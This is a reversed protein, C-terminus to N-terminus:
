VVCHFRHGIPRHHPGGEHVHKRVFQGPLNASKSPSCAFLLDPCPCHIIFRFPAHCLWVSSGLPLALHGPRHNFYNRGM